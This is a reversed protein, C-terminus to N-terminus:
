DSESMRDAQESTPVYVVDKDTDHIKDEPVDDLSVTKFQAKEHTAGNEPDDLKEKAQRVNKRIAEPGVNRKGAWSEPKRNMYETTWYDMAEAPSMEYRWVFEQIRQFTFYQGEMWGEPYRVYIPFFIDADRSRWVSGPVEVTWGKNQFEDLSAHAVAHIKEHDIEHDTKRLEEQIQYKTLALWVGDRPHELIWYDSGSELRCRRFHEHLNEQLAEHIEEAYEELDSKTVENEAAFREIFREDILAM